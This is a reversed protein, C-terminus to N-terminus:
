TTTKNGVWYQLECCPVVILKVSQISQIYRWVFTPDLQAFSSIIIKIRWNDTNRKPADCPNPGSLILDSVTIIKIERYLRKFSSQM